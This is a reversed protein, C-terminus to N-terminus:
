NELTALPMPIVYLFLGEDMMIEFERDRVLDAVDWFDGDTYTWIAIGEATDPMPGVRFRADSFRARVMGELEKVYRHVKDSPKAVAM